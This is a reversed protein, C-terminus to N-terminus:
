QQRRRFNVFLRHGVAGAATVGAFLGAVGAPGTSPLECGEKGPNDECTEPKKCDPHNPPLNPNFECVPAKEPTVTAKCTEKSQVVKGDALFNVIASVTHSVTDTFTYERYINGDQDKTTVGKVTTKSDLTFDASQVTVNNSHKEKVTFRFTKNDASTATLAECVHLFEEKVVGIEKKCLESTVTKTKGGPLSIQIEVSVTSSKEFTIEKTKDAPNTTTDFLKKGSGDNVYYNFKVYQAHGFKSADTSFQYTNKKGSVAYKNLMKCEAGSKVKVGRTVPNGCPNMIAVEITGDDDFMVMVPISQATASWRKEPTGEYYTTGNITLPDSSRYNHRGMSWGGTLVVQGDVVVDGNRRFEGQRATSAFRDYESTSLGFYNYVTQLDGPRNDRADAVLEAPNAAGCGGNMSVYNISNTDCDRGSAAFSGQRSAFGAGIAGAFALMFVGALVLQKPTARKYKQVLKSFFSM